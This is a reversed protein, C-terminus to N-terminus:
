RLRRESLALVMGTTKLAQFRGAAELRDRVNRFRGNSDTTMTLTMVNRDEDPIDM